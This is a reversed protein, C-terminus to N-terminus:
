VSYIHPKGVKNPGAGVKIFEEDLREVATLYCGRIKYPEADLVENEEMILEGTTVVTEYEEMMDLLSDVGAM